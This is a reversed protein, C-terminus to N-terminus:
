EDDEASAGDRRLRALLPELLEFVLGTLPVSRRAAHRRLRQWDDMAVFISIQKRIQGTPIRAPQSRPRRPERPGAPSRLGSVDPLESDGVPPAVAARTTKVM